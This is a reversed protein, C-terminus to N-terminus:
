TDGGAQALLGDAETTLDLAVQRMEEAQKEDRKRYQERDAYPAFAELNAAEAILLEAAGRLAFARAQNDSIGAAKGAFTGARVCHDVNIM